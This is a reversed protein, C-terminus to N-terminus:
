QISRLSQKNIESSPLASQANRHYKIKCPMLENVHGEQCFSSQAVYHSTNLANDNISHSTTIANMSSVPCQEQGGTTTSSVSLQQQYAGPSIATLSQHQQYPDTTVQTAANGPYQSNAVTPYHLYVDPTVQQQYINSATTVSTTPYGYAHQNVNTPPLYQQQFVPQTPVMGFGM